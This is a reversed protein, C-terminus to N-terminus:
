RAHAAAEAAIDTRHHMGEWGVKAVAEYARQRATQLTEGTGTVGLVRGGATVPGEAVGACYLHVGELRDAEVLGRIPDGARPNEPYGDAALVVCVAAMDAAFRPEDELRGAAAQHLVAAVDGEWRPALVQTEPDGFRVNFELVKPGESTLMLGAYLVGRYDVGRDKLAALTPEIAVAVIEKVVQADVVPVPSYSGMGGTNPGKDGDSLRKFDQAPALPVARSGDCLAMLSLETGRLGEEVVVRRGGGLKARADAVAEDVDDTVLVGKGAALGDTKVVWPPHLSRLFEAAPGESDFVGFRATPVGAEALVQKMWAKSGELRAGDRGPGLVVKGQARLRDALGDVLPAEPGVVFLDADVDEPPGATCSVGLLSMGANGPCVTTAATRQLAEALAHERGGAGVVCVRM